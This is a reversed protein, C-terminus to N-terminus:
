RSQTERRDASPCSLVDPTTSRALTQAHASPHGHKGLLGTLRTARASSSPPFGSSWAPAEEGRTLSSSPQRLSQIVRSAVPGREGRAVMSGGVFLGCRVRSAWTSSLATGIEPRGQGRRKFTVALRLLCLQQCVNLTRSCQVYSLYDSGPVIKPVNKLSRTQQM